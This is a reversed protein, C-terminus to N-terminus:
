ELGGWNDDEDQEPIGSQAGRSLRDRLAAAGQQEERYREAQRRRNAKRASANEILLRQAESAARVASRDRKREQPVARLGQSRVWLPVPERHPFRLGVTLWGDPLLVYIGRLDRPDFKIRVRKGPRFHALLESSAYEEGFCRIGQPTINRVKEPLLEIRFSDPEDPM